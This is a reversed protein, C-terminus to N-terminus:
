VTTAPVNDRATSEGNVVRVRSSAGGSLPPSPVLLRRPGGSQQLQLPVKDFNRLLINRAASVDRDGSYGCSPCTFVKSSGLAAHWDGCKTCTKSTGHETVIEIQLSYVFASHCLNRVLVRLSHNSANTRQLLRQRFAYHRLTLMQRVTRSRIAREGRRVMESSKFEPLLVLRYNSTLYAVIKRHMDGVLNRMRQHIRLAARRLSARRRGPAAAIKGELVDAHHCLREIRLMANKGFEVINGDPSYGTLFTRVGLYM